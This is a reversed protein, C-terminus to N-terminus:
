TNNTRWSTILDDLEKIRKLKDGLLNNYQKETIIFYYDKYKSYAEGYYGELQNKVLNFLTSPSIKDTDYLVYYIKPKGKYFIGDSDQLRETFEYADIGLM